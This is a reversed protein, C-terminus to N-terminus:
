GARYALYLRAAHPALTLSRDTWGLMALVPFATGIQRTFRRRSMADKDGTLKNAQSKQWPKQASKRAFRGHPRLDTLAQDRLAGFSELDSSVEFVFVVRASIQLFASKGLDARM